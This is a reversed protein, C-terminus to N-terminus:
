VWSSIGLEEKVLQTILVRSHAETDERTISTLWLFLGMSKEPHSFSARSLERCVASLPPTIIILMPPDDFQGLALAQGLYGM